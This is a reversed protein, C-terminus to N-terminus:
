IQKIYEKLMVQLERLSDIQHNIGTVGDPYENTPKTGQVDLDLMKIQAEYREVDRKLLVEQDDLRKIEGEEMTPTEKQAKIQTQLIDLKARSKDYEQRVEERIMQTKSRKFCLDEIMKEVGRKKQLFYRYKWSFIYKIINMTKIDIHILILQKIAHSVYREVM